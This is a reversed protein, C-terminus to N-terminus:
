YNLYEDPLAQAARLLTILDWEQKIAQCALWYRQPASKVVDLLLAWQDWTILGSLMFKKDHHNHEKVWITALKLWHTNISKHKLLTDMKMEQNITNRIEILFEKSMDGFEILSKGIDWHIELFTKEIIVQINKQTQQIRNELEKYFREYEDKPIDEHIINDM